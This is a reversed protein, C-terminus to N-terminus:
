SWLGSICSRHFKEGKTAGNKQFNEKWAELQNDAIMQMLMGKFALAMGISFTFLELNGIESM